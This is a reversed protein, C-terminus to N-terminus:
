ISISNLEEQVSEEAEIKSLQDANLTKGLVDRDNKLLQIQKMKKTLARIRKQRENEDEFTKEVVNLAIDEKTKPKKKKKKKQASVGPPLDERVSQKASYKKPGTEEQRVAQANGSFNPHRYKGTSPALNNNNNNSENTEIKKKFLPIKNQYKGPKWGVQYLENVPEEYILDGDFTWIKYGNDVRIRPSLVATTFYNSDPSWEFHAACHAKANGVKKVKKPDWIDIDGQLNGFGAIALIHGNPAWRAFNRPATGFEAKPQRDKGFLTAQAPMYGYIVVFENGNPSWKVDQIPGEKGLTINEFTGGNKEFTYFYLNAEGYYSKGTKDVDTQTMIL